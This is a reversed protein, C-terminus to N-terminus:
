LRHPRFATVCTTIKAINRIIPYQYFTPTAAPLNRPLLGIVAKDLVHRSSAPAIYCAFVGASVGASVGPCDHRQVLHSRRPNKKPYIYSFPSPRKSAYCFFSVLNQVSYINKPLMALVRIIGRIKEPAYDSGIAVNPCHKDVNEHHM